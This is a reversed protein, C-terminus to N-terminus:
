PTTVLPGPEPCVGPELRELAADLVRLVELRGHDSMHAGSGENFILAREEDSVGEYLAQALSVYPLRLSPAIERTRGELKEYISGPYRDPRTPFVLLVPCAGHAEADERFSQLLATFTAFQDPQIRSHNRYLQMRGSIFDLVWSRGWRGIKREGSRYAEYLAEPGLVPTNHIAVEGQADVSFTPKAYGRFTRFTRFYDRLYLGFVAIDGQYRVGTQRFRLWAQGVGFGQVSLNVVEWGPRFLGGDPFRADLAGLERTFSDGVLVVRPVGPTRPRAVRTASGKADRTRPGNVWGLNPDHRVDSGTTPKGAALHDKAWDWEAALSADPHPPIQDIAHRYIRIGVETLLFTVLTALALRLLTKM